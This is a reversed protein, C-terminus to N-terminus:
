QLKSEIIHKTKDNLVDDNFLGMLRKDDRPKLACVNSLDIAIHSNWFLYMSRVMNQNNIISSYESQKKNFDGKNEEYKKNDTLVNNIVIPDSSSFNKFSSNMKELKRYSSLIVKIDEYRESICKDRSVTPDSFDLAIKSILAESIYVSINLPADDKSLINYAITGSLIVCQHSQSESFQSSSLENIIRQELLYLPKKNSSDRWKSELDNVRKQYNELNNSKFLKTLSDNDKWYESNNNLESDSTNHVSLLDQKKDAASISPLSCFFLIFLVIIINKNM